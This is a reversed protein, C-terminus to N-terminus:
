KKNLNIIGQSTKKGPEQSRNGKTNILNIEATSSNVVIDCGANLTGKTKSSFDCDKMTIKTRSSAQVGILKFKRDISKVNQLYLSSSHSVPAFIIFIGKNNFKIETHITTNYIKSAKGRFRMLYEHSQGLMPTYEFKGHNILMSGYFFECCTKVTIGYKAEIACDSSGSILHRGTLGTRYAIVTNKGFTMTVKHFLCIGNYNLANFSMKFNLIPTYRTSFALYVHGFNVTGNNKAFISIWRLDSNKFKTTLMAGDSLRGMAAMDIADIEIAVKNGCGDDGYDNIIAITAEQITKYAGNKTGVTVIKDFIPKGKSDLANPSSTNAPDDPDGAYDEAWIDVPKEEEKKVEKVIEKKEVEEQVEEVVLPTHHIAAFKQKIFKTGDYIAM